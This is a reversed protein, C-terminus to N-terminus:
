PEFDKEQHQIAEEHILQFLQFIFEESLHKKKGETIRSAIIEKWRHPQLTSINNNRKLFGMKEAIEMRKGLLKILHEDIDDVEIRLEKIRKQYEQSGSLESKLTLRNILLRFQRPTLQQGSDSLARAPNIHVEIMLGDYLLDLAEQAISFILESKGGMHSPDCLLPIDPIQRKLEIPIKWNPDNRYLTKKSTSFGRHIVGIKKLGANYLREIAGLWLEIDPSVPNKVFVPVDTGKLSDTLAQVAFPNPTTRAGIWLVDIKHELCAEVHEPCAVEVGVPLKLEERVKVLWNLGKIGVGEFSDPHTRPKWIGARLFSVGCNLLERATELIQKESEVSCPGAALFIKKVPLGWEKLHKTLLKV